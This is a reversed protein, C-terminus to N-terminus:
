AAARPGDTEFEMYDLGQADDASWGVRVKDGRALPTSGAKNPVKVVFDDNGGLTLVYTGAEILVTSQGPNGNAAIIAERLTVLGDGGTLNDLASNVTLTTLLTRSELAESAQRQTHREVLSRRKGRRRGSASQILRASLKELWNSIFM